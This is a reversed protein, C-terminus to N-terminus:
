DGGFLSPRTRTPLVRLHRRPCIIRARSQSWRKCAPTMPLANTAHMQMLIGNALLMARRAFAKGHMRGFLYLANEV